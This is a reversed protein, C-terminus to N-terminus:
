EGTTMTPISAPDLPEPRIMTSQLAVHQGIESSTEMAQMLEVVHNMLMGSARPAEGTRIANALDALGLGRANDSFGDDLDVEQWDGTKQRYLRVPGGFRNPDPVSLTGESGYIEILPRETSWVDYTATFSAVPGAAFDLVANLFTPTEVHITEGARPQSSITRTPFSIRANSALRSVPGLLSVLATLYYPGLNFQPGGGHQYSFDPNPHWHENGHSAFCAAAGVPDGIAGEDILRRCTQIGAGLFTDPAGGILLGKSAALNVLAQAEAPDVALPKECYVAKGAQLASRNVEDHAVPITLNLVVDIEPDAVVGDPTLVREIGYQQAKAEARERVLDAVAIINYGAFRQTANTLYIDSIHGCGILGVRVPQVSDM